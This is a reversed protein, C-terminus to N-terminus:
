KCACGSAELARGRVEGAWWAADQGAAVVVPGCVFARCAAERAAADAGGAAAAPPPVLAGVADLALAVGVTRAVAADGHRACFSAVQAVVSPGRAEVRLVGAVVRTGGDDVMVVTGHSLVPAARADEFVAPSGARVGVKVEALLAVVVADGRAAVLQRQDGARAAARVVLRAGGRGVLQRVRQILHRKTRRRGAAAAEHM